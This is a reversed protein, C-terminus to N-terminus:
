LQYNAVRLLIDAVLKQFIINFKKHYICSFSFLLLLQLMTIIERVFIYLHYTIYKDFLLLCWYNSIMNGQVLLVTAHLLCVILKRTCHMAREKGM